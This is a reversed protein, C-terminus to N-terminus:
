SCFAGAHRDTPRKETKNNCCANDDDDDDDNNNDYSKAIWPFGGSDM